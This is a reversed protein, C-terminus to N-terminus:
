SYSGYGGDLPLGTWRYVRGATLGDLPFGTWRYARGASLEDMWQWGKTPWRVHPAQQRPQLHVERESRRREQCRVQQLLVRGEEHSPEAQQRPPGKGM